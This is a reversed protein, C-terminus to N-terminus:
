NNLIKFFQRFLQIKGIAERSDLVNQIEEQSKWQFQDVNGDPEIFTIQTGEQNMIGKEKWPGDQYDFQVNCLKSQCANELKESPQGFDGFTWTGKSKDSIQLEPYDFETMDRVTVDNGKVVHIKKDTDNKAMYFGDKWPPTTM